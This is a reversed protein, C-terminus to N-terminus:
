FADFDLFNLFCSSPDINEKNNELNKYIFNLPSPKFQKPIILYRNTFKYKPILGLFVKPMLSNAITSNEFDIKDSNFPFEAIANLGFRGTSTYATVWNKNTKFFMKKSPNKLRWSITDNNWLHRFQTAEIIEESSKELLLNRIGIRSELPSVLQFGIQRTWGPTAARNAIGIVFQYGEQYGYECMRLGLKKFLYKGQFDSHVAVNVALLGKVSENHIFYNVPITIVQGVIKDGYWADAGIAAGIPNAYYLWSLYNHNLHSARPFCSQYLEIYNQIHQSSSKKLEINV